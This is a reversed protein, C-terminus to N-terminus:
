NRRGTSDYKVLESLRQGFINLNATEHHGSVLNNCHVCVRKRIEPGLRIEGIIQNLNHM